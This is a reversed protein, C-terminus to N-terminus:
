SEPEFSQALDHQTAFANIENISLILGDVVTSPVKYLITPDTEPLVTIDTEQVEGSVAERTDSDVYWITDGPEFDTNITM